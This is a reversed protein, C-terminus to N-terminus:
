LPCRRITRTPCPQAFKPTLRIVSSRKSQLVLSPSAVVYEELDSAASSWLQSKSHETKGFTSTGATASKGYSSEAHSETDFDSSSYRSPEVEKMKHEDYSTGTLTPSPPNFDWNPDNLHELVDDIDEPVDVSHRRFLTLTPIATSM